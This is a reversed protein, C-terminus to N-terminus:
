SCVKVLHPGFQAGWWLVKDWQPSQGFTTWITGGENSSKTMCCVKVLHPGFKAEQQLVKDRLPSWGFTTWFTGRTMPSQRVTSKSWIHDLCIGRTLPSQWAASKSWINDLCTSRSPPGQNAISKVVYLDVIYEDNFYAPVLCVSELWQNVRFQFRWSWNGQWIILVCSTDTGVLRALSIVSRKDMMCCIVFSASWVCDDGICCRVWHSLYANKYYKGPITSSKQMHVSTKQDMSRHYSQKSTRHKFFHCHRLWCRCCCIM